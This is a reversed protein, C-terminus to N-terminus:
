LITIRTIRTLRDLAVPLEEEIERLFTRRDISPSNEARPRCVLLISSALSNVETKLGTVRETRLPWTAVIELGANILATLMTEWGTSTKGDREEEQQKYAYMIATPCVTSCNQRIRRLAKSLRWEFHANHDEFRFRNAVIEESKPTTMSALLDPYIDRLLPRLWVYFFDSSDAYHINDYYPPDTIIMAKDPHVTTAADAQHVKGRNASYPLRMLVDTIWKVQAAWNQTSNSFPNAEAFDWVMGIGQRAFVPPIKEGLNDWIAFSSSSEATRGIALALYTCVADAYDPSAGSHLIQDRAVPLLTGLTNLITTQRDTFLSHWETFGYLQVSISRAKEPLSGQPRWSPEASLAHQVHSETPSLYLKGKAGEAVIATLTEGMKGAKGQERVYSLKVPSHCAVCIAGARNVTTHKPVGGSHSQVIWSISRSQQNIIPKRWHENGQKRSVQFTTVLPMQIGCAPNACPVTRAWLWAVVTAAEGNPLQVKPYLHGIRTEAENRMWSGYYRIDDALGAAGKWPSPKKRGSAFVGLSDGESNVPLQATFRPPIEILAKTILVPLPNLDSAHARLGLRQAELAISGGGCFPDYVPPAYRNLYDLVEAANTPATEHRARAVSRAIEYRADTILKEDSCNKWIILRRILGHLRNREALQEAETHFEACDSPDDVMSAFIVARCAALPRRAWYRHLTSPHGHTLSADRASESNIADLPIDVEILKKRYPQTQM